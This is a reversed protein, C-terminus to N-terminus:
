VKVRLMSYGVSIRGWGGRLWVSVVLWCRVDVFRVFGFRFVFVRVIVVLVLLCFVGVKFVLM